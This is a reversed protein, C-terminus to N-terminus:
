DIFLDDVSIAEGDGPMILYKLLKKDPDRRIRVVWGDCLVVNCEGGFMGGLKPLPKMEDLPLDAPRTWIVPEGAEFVLGTNSYGDPIDDPLRTLKAPVFLTKKGTFVQYFTEGQRAKVQFPAYVRPMKTILKKNHPSDWPENLKFEKYLEEEGLHPLIVVLWSLLPKGDATALDTPLTLTAQHFRYIALGIRRLNQRSLGVDIRPAPSLEDDRASLGAAGAASSGSRDLQPCRFAEPLGLYIVGTRYGENV